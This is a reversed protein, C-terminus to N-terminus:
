QVSTDDCLVFRMCSVSMGRLDLHVINDEGHCVTKLLYSGLDAGSTVMVDKALFANPRQHWIVDYFAADPAVSGVCQSDQVQFPISNLPLSLPTRDSM